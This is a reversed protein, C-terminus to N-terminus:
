GCYLNIINPTPSSAPPPTPESDKMLDIEDASPTTHHQEPNHEININNNSTLLIEEEAKLLTPLTELQIGILPNEVSTKIM